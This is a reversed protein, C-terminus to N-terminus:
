AAATKLLAFTSGLAISIAVRETARMALMNREYLNVDGVTAQDAIMVSMRERDGFFINRLQGFGLMNTSIASTSPMQDVFVVPFGLLTMEAPNFVYSDGSKMNKIAAWATRSMFWKSFSLTTSPVAALVDFLNGLTVDTFATNTATMTVTGATVDTNNLIGTFVTGDGNFAQYDEAQGFKEAFTRGLLPAIPVKSDSLLQKTMPIIIGHLKATLVLQGIAPQGESIVEGESVWFGDPKSSIEPLELKEGGMPIVTGERRAVGGQVMTELVMNRFEDPVFYGGDEDTGESLGKGKELAAYDGARLAKFFDKSITSDDHKSIVAPATKLIGIGKEADAIRAAEFEALKLNLAELGKVLAEIKAEYSKKTEDFIASNKESTNKAIETALEKIKAEVQEPTMIVQEPTANAEPMNKVETKPTEPKLNKVSLVTADPNAPINVASIELLELEKFDYGGDDNQIYKQSRFRVSFAKLIKEKYLGYIEDAKQSIGAKPFRAKFLLRGGETKIEEVTAIAPEWSDHGWLFIPNTKYTDLNWEDVLLRDNDRDLAGTSGIGEITRENKSEKVEFPINKTRELFDM